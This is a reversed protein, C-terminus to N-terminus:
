GPPIRGVSCLTRMTSSGPDTYCSASWGSQQIFSKRREALATRYANAIIPEVTSASEGILIESATSLDRFFTASPTPEASTAQVIPEARCTVDFKIPGAMRIDISPGARKGVKGGIAGAIQRALDDCSDARAQVALLPLAACAALLLRPVAFSSM